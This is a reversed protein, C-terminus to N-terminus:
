SSCLGQQKWKWDINKDRFFNDDGFSCMRDTSCFQARFERENKRESQESADDRLDKEVKM